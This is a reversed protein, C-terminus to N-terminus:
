GDSLGEEEKKPGDYTVSTIHRDKIRCSVSYKDGEVKTKGTVEYRHDRRNEVSMHHFDTLKYEDRLRKECDRIADGEDYALAAGPMTLTLTMAAALTTKIRTILM